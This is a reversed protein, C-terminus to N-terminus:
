INNWTKERIALGIARGYKKREKQFGLEDAIERNNMSGWDTNKIKLVIEASLINASQNQVNEQRTIWRCNESNYGKDNDERDIELENEYGNNLAWNIFEQTDNLWEDCVTIGRGGYRKYSKDVPYYCRQKM